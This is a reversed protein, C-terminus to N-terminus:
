ISMNHLLQGLITRTCETVPEQADHARARPVLVHGHEQGPAALVLAEAGRLLVRHLAAGGGAVRDMETAHFATTRSTPREWTAFGM